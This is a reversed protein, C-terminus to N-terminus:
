LADDTSAGTGKGSSGGVDSKAPPPLLMMAGPTGGTTVLGTSGNDPHYRGQLEVRGYPGQTLKCAEEPTTEFLSLEPQDKFLAQVFTRMEPGRPGLRPNGDVTSLWKVPGPQRKVRDQAGEEYWLIFPPMKSRTALLHPTVLNHQQPNDRDSAARRAAANFISGGPAVPSRNLGWWRIPPQYGTERYVKELLKEHAQEAKFPAQIKRHGLWIWLWLPSPLVGFVFLAAAVKTVLDTFSFSPLSNTAPTFGLLQPRLERAHPYDSRALFVRAIAFADGSPLDSLPPVHQGRLTDAEDALYIPPPYHECRPTFACKDGYFNDAAVYSRFWAKAGPPLDPPIVLPSAEARFGPCSLAALSAATLLVRRPSPM